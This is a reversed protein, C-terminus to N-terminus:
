NNVRAPSSGFWRRSVFEFASRSSPSSSPRAFRWLSPFTGTAPSRKSSPWRPWSRLSDCFQCCPRRPGTEVEKTELRIDPPNPKRFSFWCFLRPLPFYRLRRVRNPPNASPFASRPRTPCPWVPAPRRPWTYLCRDLWYYWIFYGFM